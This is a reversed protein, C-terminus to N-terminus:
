WKTVILLRFKHRDIIPNVPFLLFQVDSFIDETLVGADKISTNNHLAHVFFLYFSTSLVRTKM